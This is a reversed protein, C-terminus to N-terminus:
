IRQRETVADRTRLEVTIVFVDERLGYGIEVANPAVRRLEITPYAEALDGTMLPDIIEEISAEATPEVDGDDFPRSFSARFGASEASPM